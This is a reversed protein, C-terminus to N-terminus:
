DYKIKMEFTFKEKGLFLFLTLLVMGSWQLDTAWLFHSATLTSLDFSSLHPTNWGIQWEAALLGQAFQLEWIKLIPIIFLMQLSETFIFYIM